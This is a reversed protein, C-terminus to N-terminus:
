LADGIGPGQLTYVTNKTEIISAEMDKSVIRSTRIYLDVPQKPHSVVHGRITNLDIWWDRIIATQKCETPKTM